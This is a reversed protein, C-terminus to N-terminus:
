IEIEDMRCYKRGVMHMERFLFLKCLNFSRVKAQSLNELETKKIMDLEHKAERERWQALETSAMEEPTLRVLDRPRLTKEAIRRFLTNKEDKINFRLSRYKSKYKTNTDNFLNFLEEEVQKALITM